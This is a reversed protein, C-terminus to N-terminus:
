FTLHFFEVPGGQKGTLSNHNTIISTGVYTKVAKESPILADSNSALTGDISKHASDVMDANLNTVLSTDDTALHTFAKTGNIIEEENIMLQNTDAADIIENNYRTPIKIYAM